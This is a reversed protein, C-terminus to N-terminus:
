AKGKQSEESWVVSQGLANCMGWDDLVELPGEVFIEAKEFQISGERESLPNVNILGVQEASTVVGHHRLDPNARTSQVEQHFGEPAGPHVSVRAFRRQLNAVTAGVDPERVCNNYVVWM